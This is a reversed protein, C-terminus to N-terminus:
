LNYIFQFILVLKAVDVRKRKEKTKRTTLNIITVIVLWIKEKIIKNTFVSSFIRMIYVSSYLSCFLFLLFCIIRHCTFKAFSTVSTILEVTFNMRSYESLFSEDIYVSLMVFLIITPNFYITRHRSIEVLL